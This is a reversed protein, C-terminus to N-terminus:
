KQVLASDAGYRRITSLLGYKTITKMVKTSVRLRVWRKEEPIWFRKWQLNAQQRHKTKRNSHSVRNANNYRKGSIDCARMM